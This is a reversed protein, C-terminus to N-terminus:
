HIANKYHWPKFLVNYWLTLPTMRYITSYKSSIWLSRRSIYATGVAFATGVYPMSATLSNKFLTPIRIHSSRFYVNSRCLGVESMVSSSTSFFPLTITLFVNLAERVVVKARADDESYQRELEAERRRREDTADGSLPLPRPPKMQAFLATALALWSATIQRQLATCVLGLLPTSPLTMITIDVPLATISKVLENIAQGVGTDQGVAEVCRTIAGLVGDRLRTMREDDRAVKIHRLILQERVDDDLDLLDDTVRTLGKAIGALTELHLIIFNRADDPLQM